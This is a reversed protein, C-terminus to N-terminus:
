LQMLAKKSKTKTINMTWYLYMNNHRIFQLATLNCCQTAFMFISVHFQLASPNVPNTSIVYIYALRHQENARHITLLIALVLAAYYAILRHQGNIAAYSGIPFPAHISTMLLIQAITPSIRGAAPAASREYANKPICNTRSQCEDKRARLWNSDTSLGINTRKEFTKRM